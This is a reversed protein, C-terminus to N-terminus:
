TIRNSGVVKRCMNVVIGDSLHKVTAFSCLQQCKTQLYQNSSKPCDSSHWSKREYTCGLLKLISQTCFTKNYM